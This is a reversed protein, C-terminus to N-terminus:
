GRPDCRRGGEKACSRVKLLVEEPEGNVQQKGSPGDEVNIGGTESEGSVLPLYRTRDAKLTFTYPVTFRFSSPPGDPSRV